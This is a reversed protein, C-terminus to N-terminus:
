WNGTSIWGCADGPRYAMGNKLAYWEGKEPMSDHKELERLRLYALNRATTYTYTPHSKLNFIMDLMAQIETENM